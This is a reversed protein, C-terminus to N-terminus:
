RKLRASSTFGRIRMLRTGTTTRCCSRARELALEAGEEINLRKSWFYLAGVARYMRFLEKLRQFAGPPLESVCYWLTLVRFGEVVGKKRKRGGMARGERAPRPTELEPARPAPGKVAHARVASEGRSVAQFHLRLNFLKGM